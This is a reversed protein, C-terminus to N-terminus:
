EDPAFGSRRHVTATARDDRRTRIEIALGRARAGDRADFIRFDLGYILGCDCWRAKWSLRGIVRISGFGVCEGSSPGSIQRLGNSEM